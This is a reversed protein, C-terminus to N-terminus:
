QHQQIDRGRHQHLLCVDQIPADGPFLGKCPGRNKHKEPPARPCTQFAHHENHECPPVIQGHYLLHKIDDSDRGRKDQQDLRNQQEEAQPMVALRIHIVIHVGIHIMIKIMVAATRFM